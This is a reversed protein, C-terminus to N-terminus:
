SNRTCTVKSDPSKSTMSAYGAYAGGSSATTGRLRSACSVSWHGLGDIMTQSYRQHTTDYSVAFTVYYPQKMKASPAVSVWRRLFGNELTYTVIAHTPDGLM